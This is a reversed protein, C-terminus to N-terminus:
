QFIWRAGGGSLLAVGFCVIGFIYATLIEGACANYAHVISIVSRSVDNLYFIPPYTDLFTAHFQNSDM